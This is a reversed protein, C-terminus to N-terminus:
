GSQRRSLAGVAAVLEAPEIPKSLHMEYGARLSKARDGSRAYATLSAAPIRSLGRDTLQRIQRIFQFGDMQPMGLDSILVHPRDSELRELAAEGSGVTVVDAGASELIDRVLKLADADDDVVMVRIGDLHPENGEDRRLAGRNSRVKAHSQVISMPLTVSFTAGKDRGGSEAHITGGHMEVLHRAIAMGLGLGGHRRAAGSDAQRFREFIHPLFERLIGVGTDSVVIEANDDMPAVRVQVRGGRPTFKVANSLLNWIVQQLRNPDASISGHLTSFATELKLGKADAAPTVTAVANKVVKVVDTPQLQLRTKGSVIRSVDLLDEVIQALAAANRDIVELAQASKHDPIAGTRLMRAYGLVANLPTRLEHSLTALFEDKVRDASQLQEHSLANEIALAARSAVDEALRLDEETYRTLSEATALTLVGHIRDHATMPVAMFSTLGLARIGEMRDRDGKATAVIMDDTIEPFFSAIGNKLVWQASTSSDPDDLRARLEQALFAKNPDQHVVAVQVLEGEQNVVDVACYDSLHSVALSALSRLTYEYDLSRTLTLSVQALFADRRSARELQAQALKTDSIDRAVKSAGVVRGDADLMPSVTLSITVLRGDKTKRITEFHDVRQGARISALVSDEEHQRDAPIIKRISQGVMEDATYGFMREAARNWSQVVGNLDKSIIADDSSEVIAALHLSERILHESM